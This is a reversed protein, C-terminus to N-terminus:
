KIYVVMSTLGTVDLDSYDARVLRAKLSSLRIPHKNNLDLFILNSPDYIISSNTDDYPVVSLVNVRQRKDEFMDYSEVQLNNLEVLLCDNYIASAVRTDGEFDIGKSLIFGELPNRLNNFGLWTHFEEGEFTISHNTPGVFQPSQNTNGLILDNYIETEGNGIALAPPNMRFLDPTYRVLKLSCGFDNETGGTSGAGFFSYSAFLEQYNQQTIGNTTVSPYPEKHLQISGTQNDADAPNNRYIMFYIFGESVEISVTDNKSDNVGYYGQEAGFGGSSNCNISTYYAVGDIIYSYVGGLIELKIGYKIDSVRGAPMTDGQNPVGIMNRTSLYEHPNQTHLSIAFAKPGQGFQASINHIKVRHIGCGRAIPFEQSASCIWDSKDALEVGAPQFCYSNTTGGSFMLGFAPNNTTAVANYSICSQKNTGDLIKLPADKIMEASYSNAPAQQIAISAKGGKTNISVLATKGIEHANQIKNTASRAGLTINIKSSFDDLLQQITSSNYFGHKLIVTKVVGSQLQILVRDNDSNIELEQADLEVALQGLAIQSFPAIELEQQLFSNFIAKNDETTLRILKM